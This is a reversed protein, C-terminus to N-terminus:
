TVRWTNAACRRRDSGLLRLTRNRLEAQESSPAVWNTLLRVSDDYLATDDLM